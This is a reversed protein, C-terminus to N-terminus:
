AAARQATMVDRVLERDVSDAGFPIEPHLKERLRLAGRLEDRTAGLDYIGGPGYFTLCYDIFQDENM